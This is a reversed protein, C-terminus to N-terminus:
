CGILQLTINSWKLSSCLKDFAKLIEIHKINVKHVCLVDIKLM